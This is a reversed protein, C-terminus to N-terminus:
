EYGRKRKCDCENMSTVNSEQNECACRRMNGLITKINTLNRPKFEEVFTAGIVEMFYPKELSVEEKVNDMAEQENSAVRVRHRIYTVKYEVDYINIM